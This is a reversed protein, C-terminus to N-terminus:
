QIIKKVKVLMITKLNEQKTRFINNLYIDHTDNETKYGQESGYKKMLKLTHNMKNYQGLHLMQICTGTKYKLFKIASELPLDKKKIKIIELSKKFHKSTVYNPQMIMMQWKYKKNKRDLKWIVEMPMVRYDIHMEDRIMFKLAYAVTFITQAADQFMQEGPHGHGKVILFNMEPINLISVRDKKPKYIDKFIIKHDIKKM